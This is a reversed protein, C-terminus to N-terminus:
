SKGYKKTIEEYEKAQADLETLARTVDTDYIQDEKTVDGKTLARIQADANRQLMEFSLPVGEGDGDVPRFFSPFRKAFMNKVSAVWYFVGLLDPDDFLDGTIGPYLIEGISRLLGEDKTANYGQWLNEIELWKGFPLGTLDAPIADFRGVHDLRVPFSPIERIWKACDLVAAVQEPSLFYEKGYYKILYGNDYPSYVLIRNRAFIRRTAIMAWTQTSYDDADIFPTHETLKQCASICCLLAYLERQDLEAWGTPFELNLVTM